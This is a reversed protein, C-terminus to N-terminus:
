AKFLGLFATWISGKYNKRDKAKRVKKLIKEVKNSDLESYNIIPGYKVLDNMTLGHSLCMAMFPAGRM